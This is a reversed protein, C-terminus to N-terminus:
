YLFIKCKKKKYKIDWEQKSIDKISVQDDLFSLDSISFNNGINLFIKWIYYDYNVLNNIFEYLRLEKNILCQKNCNFNNISYKFNKVFQYKNFHINDESLNLKKISYTCLEIYKIKQSDYYQLLPSYNGICSIYEYIFNNESNSENKIKLNNKIKIDFVKYMKLKKKKIVFYNIINCITDSPIENNYINNIIINLDALTIHNRNM